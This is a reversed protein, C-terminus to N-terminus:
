EGGTGEMPLLTQEVGSEAIRVTKGFGKGACRGEETGVLDAGRLEGVGM